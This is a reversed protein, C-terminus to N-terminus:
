SPKGTKGGSDGPHTHNVLSIGSAKVDAKSSIEGQAQIGGQASIGQKVAINGDVNLNQTCHVLPTELTVSTSAQFLATSIGSVKLSSSAQNYCITASDAFEIVHEDPNNSPTDFETTYLGCLIAATTLEGGVAIVLCQEGVTVPSWIRTTGARMALWPLWDTLINGSQVKARRKAYDVEAIVGFRVINEIKRNNEASM